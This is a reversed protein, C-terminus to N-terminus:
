RRRRNGLYGVPLLTLGLVVSSLDLYHGVSTPSGWQMSPFLRLAEAVHTLVVVVLCGAGLLQLFGWATKTRLFSVISWALLLGVPVSAVLATLLTATMRRSHLPRPVRKVRRSRPEGDDAAARLWASGDDRVGASAHAFLGASLRRTPDTRCAESGRGAIPSAGAVEATTQFPHEISAGLLLAHAALGVRRLVAERQELRSASPRHGRSFGWGPWTCKAMSSHSPLGLRHFVRRAIRTSRHDSSAPYDPAPDREGLWRAWAAADEPVAGFYGAAYERLAEDATRAKGSALGALLAKNVDDHVGESYAQFGTAGQGAIPDLTAPV